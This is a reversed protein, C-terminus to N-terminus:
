QGNGLMRDLYLPGAGAGVEGCLGLRCLESEAMVTRVQRVKDCGADTDIKLVIAPEPRFRASRALYDAVETESSPQGNWRLAGSAALQIESRDRLHPWETLPDFWGDPAAGCQKVGYTGGSCGSLLLWLAVGGARMAAIM